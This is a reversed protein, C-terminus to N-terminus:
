RSAPPLTQTVADNQAEADNQATRRGLEAPLQAAAAQLEILQRLLQPRPETDLCALLASAAGSLDRAGVMHASTELSRLTTRADALRDARVLEGIAEVRDDLLQLFDNVFQEVIATDNDVEALLYALPAPDPGPQHHGVPVPGEPRESGGVLGSDGADTRVDRDGVAIGGAQEPWRPLRGVLPARAPRGGVPGARCTTWLGVQGTTGRGVAQIGM